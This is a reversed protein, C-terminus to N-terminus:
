IFPHPAKELNGTSLIYSQINRNKLFFIDLTKFLIAGLPLVFIIELLFFMKHDISIYFVDIRAPFIEAFNDSL